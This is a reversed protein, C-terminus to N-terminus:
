QQFVGDWLDYYDDEDLKSENTYKYKDIRLGDIDRGATVTIDIWKNEDINERFSLEIYAGGEKQEIEIEYGLVEEIAGYSQAGSMGVLKLMENEVSAIRIQARMDADYYLQINDAFRESLAIDAYASSIALAAFISLCLTVAVVIVIVGGASKNM